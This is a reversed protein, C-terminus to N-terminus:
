STVLLHFQTFAILFYIPKSGIAAPLILRDKTRNKVKLLLLQESMFQQMFVSAIFDCGVGM